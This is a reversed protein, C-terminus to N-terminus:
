AAAAGKAPPRDERPPPYMQGAKVRREIEAIVAKYGPNEMNGREALAKQVNLLFYPNVLTIKCWGREKTWIDHVNGDADFTFEIRDFAHSTKKYAQAEDYFEKCLNVIMTKHPALTEITNVRKSIFEEIWSDPIPRDVEPPFDKSPRARKKLKM